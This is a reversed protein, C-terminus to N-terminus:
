HKHTSTDKEQGKAEVDMTFLKQGAGEFTLKLPVKDGKNIPKNLKMLMVHTGGPKLEVLKNAPVDLADMAKMEMVGDKMKMDHIEVNGSIPTEAKVLKVPATSKIHMYAASVSGGPVTTKAWVDSVTVPSAETKQAHAKVAGLSVMLSAAATSAILTVIKM